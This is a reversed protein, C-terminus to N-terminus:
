SRLYRFVASALWGAAIAIALSLLGYILPREHSLVFLFREVGVKQVYIVTEHVDIVKGGRTLFIRATYNGEQINSPLDIATRFLTEEDVQITSEHLQYTEDRDRIRTLAITFDSANAVQSTAGVSRIARTISIKHRLDETNSMVDFFPGSTAVAYFSPASDIRVSATNVWIGFMREKKRVEVPVSPGAVSIVVELPDAGAPVPADRKVAGFILIESGAFDATISVRTQSLGAVVQEQAPARAPTLALALLVILWRLTM